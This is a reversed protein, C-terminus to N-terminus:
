FLTVACQFAQLVRAFQGAPAVLGRSPLAAEAGKELHASANTSRATSVPCPVSNMVDSEIADGM